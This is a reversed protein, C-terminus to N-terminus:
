RRARACTEKKEAVGAGRMEEVKSADFSSGGEELVSAGLSSSRLGASRPPRPMDSAESRMMKAMRPASRMPMAEHEARAEM